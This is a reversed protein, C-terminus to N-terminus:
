KMLILKRALTKKETELRYIYVGSPLDAGNFEVKHKGATQEENIIAAVKQGLVNYVSLNVFQSEPLSYEITTTPNFPNPYNNSLSFDFCSTGIDNKEVSLIVGNENYVALGGGYSSTTSQDWYPSVAIWKNKHSDIFISKVCGPLIPSNITNFVTFTENFYKVLAGRREFSTLGVGIWKTGDSEALVDNIYNNPLGSNNELYTTWEEGNFKTLGYTTGVWVTDKDIEVSYIDGLSFGATNYDFFEWSVGDFKALGGLIPDPVPGPDIIQYKMGIWINLSDDVDLSSVTGVPLESNLETYSVLSTDDIKLIGGIGRGLESAVWKRNLTDVVIQNIWDSPLISNHTTLHEMSNNSYKVIGNDLFGIWVTNDRDIAITEVLFSPLNSNNPNFVIWGNESISVLGRHTGIWIKGDVGEAISTVYNSPLSSNSTNFVIWEQNQATLYGSCFLIIVLHMLIKQYSKDM